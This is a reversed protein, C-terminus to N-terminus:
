KKFLMYASIANAQLYNEITKNNINLDNSNLALTWKGYPLSLTINYKNANFIVLIDKWIDGNAYDNLTFGITNEPYHKLFMLHKKIKDTDIMRFAPHNKRLNILEKYYYFIDLFELKRTWDMWNIYDPKNYSNSIGNKTRCFEEGSYIFPIGQSTFLISACLKVMNKKNEISDDKCSLNIKDWLTYNDHCSIYNISSNPPIFNCSIYKKLENEGNKKGTAFGKNCANFVDGKISDRIKDNFFGINPLREYNEQIAKLNKPLTSDLDWGEGYLMIPRNLENLKERILNMTYIDLLGMLDFRFGDIHYEKVWYIISDIIFKRVMSHESAIDNGCGSGNSFDGTDLLRFYYGPFIKEFNSKPANWVHNYVVDMNVSLNNIHINKIAEKLELIRSIPNDVSTSYSGEPVNYNDPEYGWNYINSDEWLKLHTFDFFPMLQIHTVGLDKIHELCTSLNDPSKTNNETLALFKGNNLVNSSPHISIDRISTEYIIADTYNKLEPSSDNEWDYPNTENLDIIAGRVGNRGIAKAYPDIAINIKNYVKIEYNYYFGKLDSKIIISWLGNNEKLPFRLIKENKCPEPNEFLLLNVELAPPSWLRFITYDKKYIYGLTLEHYFKDDFDKSSFLPFYKVKQKINEYIVFSEKKINVNEQLKVFICNDIISYQEIPLSANDNLIELKYSVFDKYDDLLVELTDFKKLLANLIKM